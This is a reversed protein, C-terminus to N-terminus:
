PMGLFARGIFTAMQARSVYQAPRYTGDSYGTTIGEDYMKQIYKFAWHTDPIDSFYEDLTYSFSDGFLAKIIFTAMQARTVNESPRYTGDSYGTTIGEDYMKQIYKFAWHSDPIDTFHPTLNYTFSEGFRARVIFAAMQSRQVNQSPYYLKIVGYDYGTTIGSEYLAEVYAYAWHEGSVDNFTTAKYMGSSETALLVADGAAFVSSVRIGEVDDWPKLGNSVDIWTTGKDPSVYVAGSCVVAYLNGNQDMTVSRVDCGPAPTQVEVWNDGEDSTKYLGGNWLGVYIDGTTSDLFLSNEIVDPFDPLGSNTIEWTTGGDTSRFIGDGGTGAYIASGATGLLAVIEQPDDSFPLSSTPSWHEAHDDTKYVDGNELGLYIRGNGDIGLSLGEDYLDLGYFSYTPLGSSAQTWTDGNDISKVVGYVDGATAYMTGHDDIVLDNADSPDGSGTEVWTDGKDTSKYIGGGDSAIFVTGNADMVFSNNFKVASIKNTMDVWSAGFDDTSFIGHGTGVFLKNNLTVCMSEALFGNIATDTPDWTDGNNTSKYVSGTLPMLNTLVGAYLNGNSDKELSFVLYLGSINPLGNNKPTWSAGGNNSFHVGGGITGAFLWDNSDIKLARINLYTIGNNIPNWTAGNDTTKYVGSEDTAAYVHNVSDVALASIEIGRLGSNGNSVFVGDDTGVYGICNPTIVFSSIDDPLNTRVTWTDGGDSSWFLQDWGGAYVRPACTTRAGISDIDRFRLGKYVWTEGSDSTKYVGGNTGVFVVNTDEQSCYLSKASTGNPGKKAWAAFTVAPLLCCVILTVYLVTLYKRFHMM